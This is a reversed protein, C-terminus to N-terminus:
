SSRNIAARTDRRVIPPTALRLRAGKKVSALAAAPPPKLLSLFSALEAETGVTVSRGYRTINM